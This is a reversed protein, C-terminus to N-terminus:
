SSLILNFRDINKDAPLVKSLHLFSVGLLVGVYGGIEALIIFFLMAIKIVMEEM